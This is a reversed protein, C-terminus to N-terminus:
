ATESFGAVENGTEGGREYKGAELYMTKPSKSKLVSRFKDAAKKEAAAQRAAAEAKQISERNEKDICEQASSCNYFRRMLVDNDWLGIYEGKALYGNPQSWLRMGRVQLIGFGHFNNKQYGGNYIIGNGWQLSSYEGFGSKQDDVWEGQYRVTTGDFERRFYTGAGHKMGNKFMGEYKPANSDSGNGKAIGKGHAFGNLCEGEYSFAIDSDLVKCTDALSRSPLSLVITSLLVLVLCNTRQM